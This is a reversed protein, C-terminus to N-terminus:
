RGALLPKGSYAINIADLAHPGFTEGNPLVIQGLFAEDFSAGRAWATRGGRQGIAQGPCTPLPSRSRNSSNLAFVPVQIFDNEAAYAAYVDFTRPDIIDESDHLVVLEPADNPVRFVQLFMENLMQGKSTRSPLTNIIVCVRDPYKEALRLAVDRTGTDNPYVGPYLKVSPIPIRSLNGEVMRELVNEEHWNAVFVATAPIKTAGIPRPFSFREIGFAVIDFFADDASSITIFVGVMLVCILLYEDM